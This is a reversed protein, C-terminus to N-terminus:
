KKYKVKLEDIVEDTIDYESDIYLIYTSKDLIISYGYKISVARIVDKIDEIVPELLKNELDELNKNSKNIFEKLDLIKKQIELEMKERETDNMVYKKNSYETQLKKIEAEKEKKQKEFEERKKELTEEALAKGPSKEFVRELDVAGIKVIREARKARLNITLNLSFFILCLFIINFKKINKM